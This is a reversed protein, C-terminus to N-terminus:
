KRLFLISKKITSLSKGTEFMAEELDSFFTLRLCKWCSITDTNTLGAIKHVRINKNQNQCINNGGMKPLKIKNTASTIAVPKQLKCKNPQHQQRSTQQIIYPSTIVMLSINYGIQKNQCINNGNTKPVTPIAM